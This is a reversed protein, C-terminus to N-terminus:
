GRDDEKRQAPEDVTHSPSAPQIIEPIPADYGLIRSNAPRWPRVGARRRRCYTVLITLVAGALFVLLAIKAVEVLVDNVEQTSAM